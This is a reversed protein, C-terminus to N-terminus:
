PQLRTIEWSEGRRTYLFRDHLRNLRGQWFEIQDPRVRYGGWHPPAPIQNGPFQRDAKQVAAMLQDRSEIPRSQHSAWAGIRSGRMRSDFYAQVEDRPLPTATGEVRVQRQFLSWHFVLAVRPNAALELAKRSETNTYFSFGAPTLDKFLVFRVSPIGDPTATALAMSEPLWLGTRVAEDYWVRFQALPDSGAEFGPLDRTMGRTALWLGKLTRFPHM